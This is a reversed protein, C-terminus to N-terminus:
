RWWALLEFRAFFREFFTRIRVTLTPQPLEATVSSTEAAETSTAVTESEADPADQTHTAQSDAHSEVKVEIAEGPEYEKIYSESKTEGNVTTETHVEVSGGGSGAQTHSTASASAAGTTVSGGSGVENGGSSATASTSGKVSSTNSIRIEAHATGTSILMVIIFLVFRMPM